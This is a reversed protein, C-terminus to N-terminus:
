PRSRSSRSRRRGAEPLRRGWVRRLIAPAHAILAEVRPRTPLVMPLDDTWGREYFLQVAAKYDKVDIRESVLDV